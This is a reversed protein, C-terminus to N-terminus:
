FCLMRSSYNAVHFPHWIKLLNHIRKYEESNVVRPRVNAIYENSETSYIQLFSNEIIMKNILNQRDVNNEMAARSGVETFLLISTINAHIYRYEKEEV